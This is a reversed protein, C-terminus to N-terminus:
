TRGYLGQGTWYCARPHATCNRVTGVPDVKAWPCGPRSTALSRSQPSQKKAWATAKTDAMLLCETAPASSLADTPVGPSALKQCGCTGEEEQRTSSRGELLLPSVMDPGLAWGELWRPWEQFRGLGAWALYQGKRGVLGVRHGAEPGTRFGLGM